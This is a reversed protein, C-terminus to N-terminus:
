IISRNGVGYFLTETWSDPIYHDLKSDAVNHNVDTDSLHPSVIRGYYLQNDQFKFTTKDYILENSPQTIDDEVIKLLLEENELPNGADKVFNGYSIFTDSYIGYQHQFGLTLTRFDIVFSRVHVKGGLRPETEDAPFLNIKANEYRWFRGLFSELDRRTAELYLSHENNKRIRFIDKICPSSGVPYFGKFRGKM